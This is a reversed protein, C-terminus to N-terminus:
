QMIINLSIRQIKKSLGAASQKDTKKHEIIKIEVGHVYVNLSPIWAEDLDFEFFIWWLSCLPWLPPNLVEYSSNRGELIQHVDIAAGIIKGSLSSSDEEETVETSETTLFFNM